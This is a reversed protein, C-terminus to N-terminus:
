DDAPEPASSAPAAGTAAPRGRKPGPRGKGSVRRENLGLVILEVEATVTQLTGRRYGMIMNAGQAIQYVLWDRGQCGEPTSTTKVSVLRFSIDEADETARSAPAASPPASM